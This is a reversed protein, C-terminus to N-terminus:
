ISLALMMTVMPTMVKGCVFDYLKNVRQLHADFTHNEEVFARGAVALQKRRKPDRALDAIAKGFAEPEPAALAVVRDDVIQTHTPLDTLLVATGSHM